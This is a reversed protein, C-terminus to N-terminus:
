SWGQSVLVVVLFVDKKQPSASRQSCFYCLGILFKPLCAASMNEIEPTDICLCVHLGYTCITCMALVGGIEEFLHSFGEKEMTSLASVIGFSTGLGESHFFVFCFPICLLNALPTSDFPTPITNGTNEGALM